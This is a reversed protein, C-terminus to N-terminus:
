VAFYHMDFNTLKLELIANANEVMNTWCYYNYHLMNLMYALMVIYTVRWTALLM